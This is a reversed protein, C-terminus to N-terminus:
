KSDGVWILNVYNPSSFNDVQVSDGTNLSLAYLQLPSRTTNNFSEISTFFLGSSDPRWIISGAEKAPLTAPLASARVLSGDEKFVQINSTITIWSLQDPSVSFVDAKVGTSILTGDSTLYDLNQVTSDKVLFLRDENSGLAQITFYGCCGESGLSNVRTQKHTNTNILFIGTQFDSGTYPWTPTNAYLAVWNEYPIFAFSSYSGNWIQTTKNNIIDVLKLDYAGPGNAGNSDFYRYDDLWDNSTVIQPTGTSLQKVTAGDVSTAYISYQMGEGVSYSSGDLIWAGNPSWSIWQVEQSGSSLRKIANTLSDYVYLDSSLGDMQGAFALFRGDPSWASQMIGSLFAQQLVEATVDVQSIEHAARTFIDPYGNSLLSTVMRTSGDALSMLHLTLDATDPGIEGFYTGASGSYYALWKGDPSLVNSLPLWTNEPAADSPYPIRKQGSGDADLLVVEVRDGVQNLYALYPGSTSLSPHSFNSPAPPTFTPSTIEGPNKPTPSLSPTNPVETSVMTATLVPVRASFICSGAFLVIIFFLLLKKYMM